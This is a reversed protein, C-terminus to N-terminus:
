VGLLDRRPATRKLLAIRVELPHAGWQCGFPLTKSALQTKLLTM